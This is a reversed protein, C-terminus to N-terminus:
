IKGLEALNSAQTFEYDGSMPNMKERALTSLAVAQEPQPLHSIGLNEVVEEAKEVTINQPIVHPQIFSPTGFYKGLKYATIPIFCHLCYNPQEEGSFQLCVACQSGQTGQLPPTSM